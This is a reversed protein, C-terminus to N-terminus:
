KLNVLTNNHDLYQSLVGDLFKLDLKTKKQLNFKKILNGGPHSPLFPPPRGDRGIEMLKGLDTKKPQRRRLRM